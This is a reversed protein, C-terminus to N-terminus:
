PAAGINPSSLSATTVVVSVMSLLSIKLPTSKDHDSESPRCPNLNKFTSDLAFCQDFMSLVSPFQIPALPAPYCLITKSGQIICSKCYFNTESWEFNIQIVYNSLLTSVFKSCFHIYLMNRLSTYNSLAM